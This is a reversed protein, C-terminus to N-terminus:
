FGHKQLFEEIALEILSNASMELAWAAKKTRARQSPLMVLRVSATKTERESNISFTPEKVPIQVESVVQNSEPEEAVKEAKKRAIFTEAPNNVNLKMM